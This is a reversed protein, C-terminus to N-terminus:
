GGEDVVTFPAWFMPHAYRPKTADNRVAQARGNTAPLSYREFLSTTLKVTAAYDVGWDANLKLRAIESATLREDNTQSAKAPPTMVM